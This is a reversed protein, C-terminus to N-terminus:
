ASNREKQIEEVLGIMVYFDEETFMDTYYILEVAVQEPYDDWVPYGNDEANQMLELIVEKM